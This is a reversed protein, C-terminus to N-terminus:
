RYHALQIKCRGDPVGFGLVQDYGVAEATPMLYGVQGTSLSNVGGDYEVSRNPGRLGGALREVASDSRTRCREGTAWRLGCLPVFNRAAAALHHSPEASKALGWNLFDASNRRTELPNAGIWCSKLKIGASRDAPQGLWQPEVFAGGTM